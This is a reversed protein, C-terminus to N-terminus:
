KGRLVKNAKARIMEAQSESLTGHEVEQTARSKANSAHAADEIPWKRKSPMAFKSAPIMKRVAADLKMEQEGYAAELM